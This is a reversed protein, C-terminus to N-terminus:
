DFDKRDIIINESIKGALVDIAENEKVSEAYYSKYAERVQLSLLRRFIRNLFDVVAVFLLVLLMAEPVSFELNYLRWDVTILSNKDGMWVAVTFILGIFIFTSIKRTM